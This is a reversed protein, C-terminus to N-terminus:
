RWRRIHNRVALMIPVCQLQIATPTDFGMSRLNELVTAAGEGRERLDAFSSLPAPVNRAAAGSVKIKHAARLDAAASAPDKEVKRRKSPSSGVDKFFTSADPM